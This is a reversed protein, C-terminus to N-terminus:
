LPLLSIGPVRDFDSDFTAVWEVNHNMMVGAHIADRTSIGPVARLLDRARDTDALMVALVVPCAAVFLDYVHCAFERQGLAWYRYLIEQLVETNTCADLERDQVRQLFRQARPKNPHEGGVLYM